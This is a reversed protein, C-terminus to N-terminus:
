GSSGQPPFVGSHQIRRRIVRVAHVFSLRDTDEAVKCAAQYLLTRVAYYALMLGEVEQQVLGPTKSRLMADPGLLHTKVEDYATEIEWREHYLAALEHAPAEEPDLMTTLLRYTKNDEERLCYDIVRVRCEGKIRKVRFVSGWSGDAYEEKLSFHPRSRARM